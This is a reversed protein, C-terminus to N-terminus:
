RAACKAGFDGVGVLGQGMALTLQQCGLSDIYGTCAQLDTNTRQSMQSGRGLSCTVACSTPEVLPAGCNTATRSSMENCVTHCWEDYSVPVPDAPKSTGGCAAVLAVVPVLNLAKMTPLRDRRAGSTRAIVCSQDRACSVAEGLAWGARKSAAM